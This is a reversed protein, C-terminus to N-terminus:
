RLGVAFFIDVWKLITALIQLIFNLIIEWIKIFSRREVYINFSLFILSPNMEGAFVEQKLM